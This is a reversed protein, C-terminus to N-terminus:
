DQILGPVRANTRRLVYLMHWIDPEWVGVKTQGSEVLLRKTHEVEWLEGIDDFRSNSYSLTLWISGPASLAALHLALIRVPPIPLLSFPSAKDPGCSIADSTSKDIILATEEGQPRLLQGEIQEWDLMDLQKYEMKIDGFANLESQRLLTLCSQIFDINIIRTPVLSRLQLSLHSTGSGIHLIKTPTPIRTNQITQDCIDNANPAQSFARAAYPLIIDGSGLWEFRTEKHFRSEWYEPISYDPM